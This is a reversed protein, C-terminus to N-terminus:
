RESKMVDWEARGDLRRLRRGVLRGGVVLFEISTGSSNAFLLGRDGDADVDAIFGKQYLGRDPKRWFELYGAGGDSLAGRKHVVMFDEDGEHRGLELLDVTDDGDFNALAYSGHTAGPVSSPVTPLTIYEFSM